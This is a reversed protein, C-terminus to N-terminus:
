KKMEPLCCVQKAVLVGRHVHRGALKDSSDLGEYQVRVECFSCLLRDDPPETTLVDFIADADVNCGNACLYDIHHHSDKEGRFFTTVHRVRHTLVGRPNVAFPPAEDWGHVDQASVRDRLFRKYTKVHELKIWNAKAM